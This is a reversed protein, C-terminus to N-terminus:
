ISEGRQVGGLQAGCLTLSLTRIFIGAVTNCLSLEYLLFHSGCTLLFCWCRLGFIHEYQISITKHRQLLDGIVMAHYYWSFLQGGGMTSLSQQQWPAGPFAGVSRLLHLINPSPVFALYIFTGNATRKSQREQLWIRTNNPVGWEPPFKYTQRNFCRVGIRGRPTMHASLLRCEGM